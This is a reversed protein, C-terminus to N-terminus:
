KEGEMTMILLWQVKKLKKKGLYKIGNPIHTGTSCGSIRRGQSYNLNQPLDSYILVKEMGSLMIFAGAMRCISINEM